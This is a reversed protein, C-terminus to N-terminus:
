WVRSDTMRIGFRSQADDRYEGPWACLLYYNLAPRCTACGCSTKWALEQWVAPGSKLEKASAKDIQAVRSVLDDLLWDLEGSTMGAGDGFQQAASM